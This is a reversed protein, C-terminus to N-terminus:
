SRGQENSFYIRGAKCIQLLWDNPETTHERTLRLLTTFQLLLWWSNYYRDYITIITTSFQLLVDDYNSLGLQRLNYYYM